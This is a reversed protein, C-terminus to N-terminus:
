DAHRGQSQPRRLNGRRNAVALMAIGLVLGVAVAVLSAEPGFSGGTLWTPGALHGHLLGGPLTIGSVTQGFIGALGFNWGAHLGIALWLRRTLYYAANLVLGAEIVIALAGALSSEGTVLGNLLHILGFLLSVVTIALVPGYREDLGRLLMGRFVVEELCAAGVGIMLGIVIGHNLSIGDVRYYGLLYLVLMVVSVYALGIVAGALTEPLWPRSLETPSRHEMKRVLWRYALLGFAAQAAMAIPLAPWPHQLFVPVTGATAEAGSAVAIAYALVNSGITGALMLGIAAAIWWGLRPRRASVVGSSM